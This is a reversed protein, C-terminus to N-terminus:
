NNCILIQRNENITLHDQIRDTVAFRFPGRREILLADFFQLSVSTSPGPDHADLPCAKEWFYLGSNICRPVVAQMTGWGKDVAGLHFLCRGRAKWVGLLADFIGCTYHRRTNASLVPTLVTLNAASWRQTWRTGFEADSWFTVQDLRIRRSLDNTTVRKNVDVLSNIIYNFDQVFDLLPPFLKIGFEKLKSLVDRLFHEISIM